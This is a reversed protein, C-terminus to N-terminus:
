ISHLYQSKTVDVDQQLLRQASQDAKEGEGGIDQRLELSCQIIVSFM